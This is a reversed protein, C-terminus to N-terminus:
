YPQCKLQTRRLAIAQSDPKLIKVVEGNDASDEMHAGKSKERMERTTKQTEEQRTGPITVAKRRREEKLGRLDFAEDYAEQFLDEERRSDM